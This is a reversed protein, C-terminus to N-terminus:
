GKRSFDSHLARIASYLLPNKARLRRRDAPDESYFKGFGLALYEDDSHKSWTEHLHRYKKLREKHLFPAVDEQEDVHHGVEHVFTELTHDQLKKSVDVWIMNDVYYGGADGTLISFHIRELGETFRFPFGIKELRRFLQAPDFDLRRNVSILTRSRNLLFMRAGENKRPDCVAFNWHEM